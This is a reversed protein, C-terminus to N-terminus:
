HITIFFFDSIVIFFLLIFLKTWFKQFMFHLFNKYSHFTHTFSIHSVFPTFYFFKSPIISIFTNQRSTSAHNITFNKAFCTFHLIHFIYVRSIIVLQQTFTATSFCTAHPTLAALIFHFCVYSLDSTWLTISLLYWRPHNFGFLWM